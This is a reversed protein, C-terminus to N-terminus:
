IKVWGDMDLFHLKTDLDKKTIMRNSIIDGSRKKYWIVYIFWSDDLDEVMKVVYPSQRKKFEYLTKYGNYESINGLSVEDNEITKARYSKM